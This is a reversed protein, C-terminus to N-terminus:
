LTDGRRLDFDVKAGELVEASRRWSEGWRPHAFDPIPAVLRAVGAAAILRACAECPFRVVYLTCGRPNFPAQELCNREAHVMVAQKAERDHLLSPLDPTGAPLGNFGLSLQRRDPTVLVAGVKRDPDKSLGATRVALDIFFADWEGAPRVIPRESM